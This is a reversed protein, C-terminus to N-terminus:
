SARPSIGSAIPTPPLSSIPRRRSAIRPITVYRFSIDPAAPRMASPSRETSTRGLDGCSANPFAKWAIVPYRREVASMAPAMASPFRPTSTRGREWASANASARLSITVLRERTRPSTRLPASEMVSAAACSVEADCLRESAAWFSAAVTASVDSANGQETAWVNAWYAAQIARADADPANTYKWQKAYSSDQTFLDLFGNRGGYKFEECAPQPVTEWVSEQPGRQFTNIYSTGSSSPGNECGTGPSAGFGYINDVDALWHMGYIDSTGYASKLEAALPDRGVSVGSNLASPYKNPTNYESAYTAPKSPDYFSNTPQDVQQPIMYKEMTAWADNFPQWDGTVRGYMAELELWYSYAESTTEHGYDPAEVLLTEVSHYPIGQPSFYGNAPDHIDEYMDLFRQTYPGDVLPDVADARRALAANGTARPPPDIAPPRIYDRVITFKKPASLGAREMYVDVSSGVEGRLRDTVM